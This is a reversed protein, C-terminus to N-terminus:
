SRQPTPLESVAQSSLEQGGATTQGDLATLTLEGSDSFAIVVAPAAPQLDIMAAYRVTLGAAEVTLEYRGPSLAAPKLSGDTSTTSEATAACTLRVRAGAIPAGASHRVSGRWIATPQDQAVLPPALALGLISYVGNRALSRIGRVV